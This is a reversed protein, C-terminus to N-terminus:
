MQAWAHAWTYACVCACACACVCMCVCVCYVCCGCNLVCTPHEFDNFQHTTRILPNIIIRMITNKLTWKLPEM